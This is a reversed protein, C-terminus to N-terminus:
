ALKKVLIKSAYAPISLFLGTSLTLDLCNGAGVIASLLTEDLNEILVDFVQSFKSSALSGDTLLNEDSDFVDM